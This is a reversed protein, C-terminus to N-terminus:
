GEVTNGVAKQWVADAPSTDPPRGMRITAVVQPQILPRGDM